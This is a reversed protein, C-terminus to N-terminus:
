SKDTHEKAPEIEDSFLLISSMVRSLGIFTATRTATGTLSWGLTVNEM